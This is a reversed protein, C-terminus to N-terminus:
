RKQPDCKRPQMSQSAIVRRRSSAQPTYASKPPLTPGDYRWVYGTSGGDWGGDPPGQMLAPAYAIPPVVIWPCYGPSPPQEEDSLRIDPIFKVRAQVAALPTVVIQTCAYNILNPRRDACRRLGDILIRKIEDPGQKARARLEARVDEWIDPPPTPIAAVTCGADWRWSRTHREILFPEGVARHERNMHWVVPTIRRRRSSRRWGMISVEFNEGVEASSLQQFAATLDRRLREASRGVDTWTPRGAVGIFAGRGALTSGVLSQAIFTDTPIHSLYARGTYAVVVDADTARFVIAKNCNADFPVSSDGARQSLLRDSVHFVQGRTVLQLVQTM